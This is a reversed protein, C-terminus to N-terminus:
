LNLAKRAEGEIEMMRVFAPYVSLREVLETLRPYPTLDLGGRRAISLAWNLYVDIISWEGLWWGREAIRQDAYAFSKGALEASKEKVPAVDGTTLRQPNALGRVQPHLTGGCFALGGVIEAAMRPTTAAPFIGAEPRLGAIYTLIAANETLPEGDIILSPIKGLASVKRFDDTSQEGAFLNVLKLEYPLGAQELACVSVQSCAGPCHYLTLSPTTM